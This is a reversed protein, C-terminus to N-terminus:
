VKKSLNELFLLVDIMLKNVEKAKLNKNIKLFCIADENYKLYRNITDPIANPIKEGKVYLHAVILPLIRPVSSFLLNKMGSSWKCNLMDNKMAILMRNAEYCIHRKIKLDDVTLESFIDKGYIVVSTLKINLYDIGLNKELLDTKSFVLVNKNKRLKLVLPKIEYLFNIDDDNLVVLLSRKGFGYKIVSYIKGDFIKKLKYIDDIENM